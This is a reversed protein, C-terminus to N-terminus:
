MLIVGNADPLRGHALADLTQAPSGPFDALILDRVERLLARNHRTNSMVLVIRDVTPDDRRKLSLRRLLAQVDRPRTELEVAAIGGDLALSVDWARQDGPMPLPREFQWTATPAVVRKLREMLALHGSDRVPQGAPYARISLDLGVSALLLAAAVFSLEPVLGREIRSVQSRSIGAAAGVRAQSLGHQLRAGRLESGLRLLTERTRRRAIDSRRERPPMAADDHTGSVRRKDRLEHYTGIRHASASVSARLAARVTGTHASLYMHVLKAGTTRDPM